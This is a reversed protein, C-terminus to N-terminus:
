RLHLGDCCRHGERSRGTRSCRGPGACQLAADAGYVKPSPSEPYAAWYDRVRTPLVFFAMALVLSAIFIALSPPTLAFAARRYPM